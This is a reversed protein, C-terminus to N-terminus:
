YDNQYRPLGTEIESCEHTIEQKYIPVSIHNKILIETKGTLIELGLPKVKLFDQMGGASHM